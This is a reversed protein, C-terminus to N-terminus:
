KSPPAQRGEENERHPPHPPTKTRLKPISGRPLGARHLSSAQRLTGWGLDESEAKAEATATPTTLFPYYIVFVREGETRLEKVQRTSRTRRKM